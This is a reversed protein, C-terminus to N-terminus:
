VASTLFQAASQRVTISVRRAISLSVEQVPSLRSLIWSGAVFSAAFISSLRLM